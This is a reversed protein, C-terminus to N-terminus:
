DDKSMVYQHYSCLGPRGSAYEDVTLKRECFVCVASAPIAFACWACEEDEVVYALSQCSPCEEVLEYEGDSSAFHLDIYHGDNLSHAFSTEADFFEGCASCVLGLETPESASGSSRKVLNSRCTPCILERAVDQARKTPWIVDQLSLLCARREADVISSEKLLTQWCDQQLLGMPEERLVGVVLHHVIVQADRLAERLRERSGEFYYHEIVNRIAQIRDLPKWDFPIKLDAFREKITAVDVTKNGNGIPAIASGPGAVLRIRQKILAENSDPPSLRRLHEKALLLIGAHINRLASLLRRDDGSNYDEVGIQIAAVANDLMSM